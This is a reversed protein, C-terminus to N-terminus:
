YGFYTGATKYGTGPISRPVLDNFSLQPLQTVLNVSTSTDGLDGLSDSSDQDDLDPLGDQDDPADFDQTDLDETEGAEFQNPPFDDDVEPESLPPSEPFDQVEPVEPAFDGLTDSTEPLEFNLSPTQDVEQSEDFPTTLDLTDSIDPASTDETEEQIDTDDLDQFPNETM